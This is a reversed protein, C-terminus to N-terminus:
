GDTRGRKMIYISLLLEAAFVAEFGPTQPTAAPSTSEPLTAIEKVVADRDSVPRKGLEMFPMSFKGKEADMDKLILLVREGVTFNAAGVTFAITGLETRVTIENKPLPNKLWEDVSIVVDTYEIGPRLEKVTGIVIRDSHNVQYPIELAVADWSTSVATTSFLGLAFIGFLIYVIVKNM